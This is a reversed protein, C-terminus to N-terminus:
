FSRSILGGSLRIDSFIMAADLGRLLMIALAAEASECEVVELDSDEFLAVILARLEADDEVILVLRRTTKARGM